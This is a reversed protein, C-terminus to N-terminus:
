WYSATKRKKKKNLTVGNKKINLKEVTYNFWLNYFQQHPLVNLRCRNCVIKSLFHRAGTTEKKLNPHTSQCFESCDQFIIGQGLFHPQTPINNLIHRELHEPMKLVWTLITQFMGNCSIYICEFQILKLLKLYPEKRTLQVYRDWMVTEFASNFLVTKQIKIQKRCKPFGVLIFRLKQEVKLEQEM